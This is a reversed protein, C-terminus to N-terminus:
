LLAAFKAKLEPDHIFILDHCEEFFPDASKVLYADGRYPTIGYYSYGYEELQKIIGPREKNNVEVMLCPHFQRISGMSGLLVEYDHGEADIKILCPDLQPHEAMYQDLTILDVKLEEVTGGGYQLDNAYSPDLSSTYSTSSIYFTAKGAKDSLCFNEIVYNTFGNDAYVKRTFENLKKNPEFLVCHRNISSAYLTRMGLNAGIDIYTRTLPYHDNITKEVKSQGINYSKYGSAFQWSRLSEDIHVVVKKGNLLSIKWDYNKPRTSINRLIFDRLKDSGNEYLSNFLPLYFHHKILLELITLIFSKISSKLM